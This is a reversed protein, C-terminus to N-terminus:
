NASPREARDIVVFELSSKRAELRLGLQEQIATFISVGATDAGSRDAGPMFRLTFDYKGALGTEDLVPRATVDRLAAILSSVAVNEATIGTPDFRIGNCGAAGKGATACDRNEVTRLKSGNRGIVLAYVPSEKTERHFRLQFRDALLPQLMPVIEKETLREEAKAEVDYTESDAWAPGGQIRFMDVGYAWAVLKKLSINRVAFRGNGFSDTTVWYNGSHNPKISVV